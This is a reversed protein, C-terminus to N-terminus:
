SITIDIEAEYFRGNINTQFIHDGNKLIIMNSESIIDSIGIGKDDTKGSKNRSCHGANIDSAIIVDNKNDFKNILKRFKNRVDRINEQNLYISIIELKRETNTIKIGIAEIPLIDNLNIKQINFKKYYIIAAQIEIQIIDCIIQEVSLNLLETDAIAM